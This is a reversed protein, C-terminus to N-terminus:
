DWTSSCDVEERGSVKLGRTVQFEKRWSWFSEALPGEEGRVGSDGEAASGVSTWKLDGFHLSSNTLRWGHSQQFQPLCLPPQATCLLISCEPWGCLLSASLMIEPAWVQTRGSGVPSGKPLDNFRDSDWNCWGDFPPPSLYCYLNRWTLTLISHALAQSLTHCISLM